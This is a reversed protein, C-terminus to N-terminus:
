IVRCHAGFAVFFEHLFSVIILVIAISLVRLVADLGIIGHQLPVSLHVFLFDEGYRLVGLLKKASDLLLILIQDLVVLFLLLCNLPFLIVESYFRLDHHRPNLFKYRVHEHLCLSLHMFIDVQVLLPKLLLDVVELGQEPFLLVPFYNVVFVFQFVQFSLYIFRHVLVLLRLLKEM